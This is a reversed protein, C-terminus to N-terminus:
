VDLPPVDEDAEPDAPIVGASVLAERVREGVIREAETTVAAVFAQEAEQRDAAEREAAARQQEVQEREVEAREREELEAQEDASLPPWEDLTLTDGNEAEVTWRVRWPRELDEPEDVVEYRRKRGTFGVVTDEGQRARELAGEVYQRQGSTMTRKATM